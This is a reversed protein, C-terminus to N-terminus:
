RVGLRVIVIFSVPDQRLSDAVKRAQEFRKERCLLLSHAHPKRNASRHHFSM